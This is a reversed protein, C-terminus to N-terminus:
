FFCPQTSPDFHLAGALALFAVLWAATAIYDSVVFKPMRETRDALLLRLVTELIAVVAAVVMVVVLISALGESGSDFSYKEQTIPAVPCLAVSQLLTVGLGVTLLGLLVNALRHFRRRGFRPRLAHPPSHTSNAQTM